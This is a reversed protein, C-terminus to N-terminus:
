HIIDDRKSAEENIFAEMEEIGGQILQNRYNNLIELAEEDTKAFYSSELADRYIDYNTLSMIEDYKDYLPMFYSVRYGDVFEMPSYEEAVLKKENVEAAAGPIKEGWQSMKTDLSLFWTYVSQIGENRLLQPDEKFKALWEDKMRPQGDVMDYHTGEIGYCALLRGEESNLFDILRVAAEPNECSDTIFLVPSGASGNLKKGGVQTKKGNADLIPGLPIYEMEPNTAYLTTTFFNEVHGYMAGFVAVQGTIMKEKARADNHRFAEVDFLGENVLKRMYVVQEDLLPSFTKWRYEDNVITFDSVNNERFSNILPEYTWGNGWAGAPIVPKGNIDEFGGDKIKTLLEYVEESTSVDDPNMGLSELIDKRIFLNYAWNDVDEPSGPTAWPIIYHNGNFDPDELDNERFDKATGLEVAAKVNPYKDFYEDLPVLLGEKAGKKILGTVPDSGGWFPANVIDPMDGSAFVLNLKEIEPSTSYEVNLTIGTAEKIAQAVANNIPDEPAISGSGNWMNLYTLTVEEFVEETEETPTNTDTKGGSMESSKPDAESESDSNQCATVMFTLVMLIAIIKMFKKM